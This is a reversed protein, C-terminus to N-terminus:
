LIFSEKKKTEKYPNIIEFLVKFFNHGMDGSLHDFSPFITEM